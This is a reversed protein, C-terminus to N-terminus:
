VVDALDKGDQLWFTKLGAREAGHINKELDDMFITKSPNIGALKIVKKYSSLDPKRENIEYSYFVQKFLSPFGFGHQKEFEPLLRDIHIKNTNSFLYIHYKNKLQQMIKVRHAPIDLIMAYWADDIQQDSLDPNKLIERVKNRFEEPTVKGVELDYFIPDAYANKHDLVEKDAGLKQFAQISANFDLNLLVKGLDFIINEIGNLDIKMKVIKATSILTKSNVTKLYM